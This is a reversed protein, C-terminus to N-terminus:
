MEGAIKKGGKKGEDEAKVGWKWEENKKGETEKGVGGGVEGRESREWERKTGKRRGGVM